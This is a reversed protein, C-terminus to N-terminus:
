VDKGLWYNLSRTGHGYVRGSSFKEITFGVQSFIRDCIDKDLDIPHMSDMGMPHEDFSLFCLGGPKLYEHLNEACKVFDYCHDLVNISIVLDACSEMGRLFEELPVAYLYDALRVDSWKINIYENLLPDIATIKAGLFFKTRLMSGCGADIIVKGQFQEPYFGLDRFLQNTERDLGGSPRFNDKKHFELEGSQAKREWDRKNIKLPSM